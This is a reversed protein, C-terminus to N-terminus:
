ESTALNGAKIRQIMWDRAIDIAGLMPIHFGPEGQFRVEVSNAEDVTVSLIAQKM